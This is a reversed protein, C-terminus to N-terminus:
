RVFLWECSMAFVDSSGDDDAAAEVVLHIAGLRSPDLAGGVLRTSERNTRTTWSGIDLVVCYYEGSPSAIRIRADYRAVDAPVGFIERNAYDVIALRSLKAQTKVLVFAICGCGTGIRMSRVRAGEAISRAFTPRLFMGRYSEFLSNSVGDGVITAVYVVPEIVVGAHEEAGRADVMTIHFEYEHTTPMFGPMFPLMYMRTRADPGADSQAESDGALARDWLALDHADGSALQYGDPPLDPRKVVCRFKVVQAPDAKLLVRQVSRRLGPTDTRRSMRFVRTAKDDRLEELQLREVAREYPNMLAVDDGLRLTAAYNKKYMYMSGDVNARLLPPLKEEVGPELLKVEPCVCANGM